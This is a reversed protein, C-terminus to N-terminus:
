PGRPECSRGRSVIAVIVLEIQDVGGAMDIEGVLDAAAQRGAFSRKEDDIGTLSDFGLRM